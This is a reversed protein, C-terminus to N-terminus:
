DMWGQRIARREAGRHSHWFQRKKSKRLHKWWEYASLLHGKKVHTM